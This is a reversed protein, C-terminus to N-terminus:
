TNHLRESSDPDNFTRSNQKRLERIDKSQTQYFTLPSSCLLQATM